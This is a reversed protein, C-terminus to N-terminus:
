QCGFRLQCYRKKWGEPVHVHQTESQMAISHNAFNFIIEILMDYFSVGGYKSLQVDRADLDDSATAIPNAVAGMATFLIIAISTIQM